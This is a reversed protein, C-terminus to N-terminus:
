AKFSTGGYHLFKLLRFYTVHQALTKLNTAGFQFM